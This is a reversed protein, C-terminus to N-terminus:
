AVRQADDSPRGSEYAKMWADVKTMTSFRPERGANLDLVFASDGCADIGLRSAAMGTRKLFASVRDKFEDLPSRPMHAADTM